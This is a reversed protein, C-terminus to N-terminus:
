FFASRFVNAKEALNRFRMKRWRDGDVVFRWRTASALGYNNAERDVPDSLVLQIHRELDDRTVSRRMRCRPTLELV